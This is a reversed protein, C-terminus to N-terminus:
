EHFLWRWRGRVKEWFGVQYLKRLAADAERGHLSVERAHQFSIKAPRALGLAQQCHGLQLWLVGQGSNLELARQLLKM